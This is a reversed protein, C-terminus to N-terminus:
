YKSHSPIVIMHVFLLKKYLILTIPITVDPNSQCPSSHVKEIKSSSTYWNNNILFDM